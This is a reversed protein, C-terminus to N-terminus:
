STSASHRMYAGAFYAVMPESLPNGNPRCSAMIQVLAPTNNIPGKPVFKKIPIRVNEKLFICKFIDDLFHRVNQRLKLTNFDYRGIHPDCFKYPIKYKGSLICVSLTAWFNFTPMKWPHCYLIDKILFRILTKSLTGLKTTYTAVVSWSLASEGILFTTVFYRGRENALRM